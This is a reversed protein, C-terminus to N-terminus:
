ETSKDMKEKELIRLVQLNGLRKMEAQQRAEQRAQLIGWVQEEDIDRQTELLAKDYTIKIDKIYAIVDGGRQMADRYVILGLLKVFPESNPYLPYRRIERNRVQTIYNPNQWKLSRWGDFQLYDVFITQERGNQDQLIVGLGNPYNSGYVTVEIQKIVGVNKVVGYGDFKDPQDLAYAPIEFPPKILAYSNFNPLPFHARIGMVTIGAMKEGNFEGASDKTVAPKVTSQTQNQVTRASSALQVDWNSIALSTKMKARIQEDYSAGAQSSFDVLTAENENPQAADGVTVDATLTSFDILTSTDAFAAGTFLLVVGLAIALRRM